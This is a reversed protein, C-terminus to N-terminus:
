KSTRTPTPSPNPSPKLALILTLALTLTRILTLTITLTPTLTLALALAINERAQENENNLGWVVVSAHHALRATHELVQTAPPRRRTCRSTGSRPRSLCSTHKTVEVPAQRPPKQAAPAAAPM